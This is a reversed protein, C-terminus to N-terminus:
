PQNLKRRLWRVLGLAAFGSGFLFATGPEPVPEPVDYGPQREQEIFRSPSDVRERADAPQYPPAAAVYDNCCYTRVQRKGDTIYGDGKPLIIQRRTTAIKSGKRYTVYTWLSNDLRGLTANQWNFDSFHAALVPDNQVVRAFDAVSHVINKGCLGYWKGAVESSATDPEQVAAIVQDQKKITKKSHFLRNLLYLNVGLIVCLLAALVIIILTKRDHKRKVWPSM